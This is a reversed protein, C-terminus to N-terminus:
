IAIRGVPVQRIPCPTTNDLDAALDAHSIPTSAGNPEAIILVSYAVTLFRELTVPTHVPPVIAL